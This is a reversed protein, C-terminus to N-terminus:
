LRHLYPPGALTFFCLPTCPTCGSRQREAACVDARMEVITQRLVDGLESFFTIPSGGNAINRIWDAFTVLLRPAHEECFAEGYLVELDARLVYESLEIFVDLEAMGGDSARGSMESSSSSGRSGDGSGGRAGAAAAAAAAASSSSSSATPPPASQPRGAWRDRMRQATCAFSPLRENVVAANSFLSAVKKQLEVDGESPVRAAVPLLTILEQLIQELSPDLESLVGKNAAKGMLLYTPPGVPRLDILVADGQERRMHSMFDTFSKSSFAGRLAVWPSLPVPTPIAAPAPAPTPSSAASPTLPPPQTQPSYASSLSLLASLMMARRM